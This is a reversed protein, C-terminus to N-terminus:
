CNSWILRRFRAFHPDDDQDDALRNEWRSLLTRWAVPQWDKNRPDPAGTLTLLILRANDPRGVRRQVFGKYAPLTGPQVSHAFKAELAVAFKEGSPMSRTFLLDIRRRTGRDPVPVEVDVAISAAQEFSHLFAPDASAGEFVSALFTKSRKLGVTGAEDVSLFSKLGRILQPETPAFGLHCPEFALAHGSWLPGVHGTIAYAIAQRTPKTLVERPADHAIQQLANRLSRRLRAAVAPLKVDAFPYDWDSAGRSLSAVSKMDMGPSKMDM